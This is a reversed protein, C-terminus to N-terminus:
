SIKDILRSVETCSDADRAGSFTCTFQAQSSYVLTAALLLSPLAQVLMMTTTTIIAFLKRSDIIAHLSTQHHHILSAIITQADRTAHHEAVIRKGTVTLVQRQLM